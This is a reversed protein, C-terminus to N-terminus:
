KICLNLEIAMNQDQIGDTYFKLGISHCLLQYYDVIEELLKSSLNFLNILINIKFIKVYIFGRSKFFFFAILDSIVM